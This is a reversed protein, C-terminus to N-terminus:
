TEHARLHTYSVADIIVNGNYFLDERLNKEYAGFVRNVGVGLSLRSSVEYAASLNINWLYGSQKFDLTYVTEGSYTDSGVTNPRGYTELLALSCGIALRGARVSAGVFDLAYTIHSIRDTTELVGTNVVGYRFFSAKAASANTSISIRPGSTMLAPNVLASATDLSFAMPVGGFGMSAATVLGYSNWSRSPAEDEYQGLILQASATSTFFLFLFLHITTM